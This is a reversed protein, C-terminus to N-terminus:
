NYHRSRAADMKAISVFVCVSMCACVENRIKVQGM